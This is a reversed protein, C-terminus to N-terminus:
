QGVVLGGGGAGDQGEQRQRGGGRGSLLTVGLSLSAQVLTAFDIFLWSLTTGVEM